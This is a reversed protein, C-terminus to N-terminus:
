ESPHTQAPVQFVQEPDFGCRKMADFFIEKQEEDLQDITKIDKDNDIQNMTMGKALCQWVCQGRLPNVGHSAREGLRAFGTKM